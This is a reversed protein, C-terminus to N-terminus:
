TKIGRNEGNEYPFSLCLTTLDKGQLKCLQFPRPLSDQLSISGMRTQQARWRGLPTLPALVLLCPLSSQLMQAAVPYFSPVQMQLSPNLIWSSPLVSGAPLAPVRSGWGENLCLVCPWGASIRHLPYAFTSFISLFQLLNRGGTVEHMKHFLHSFDSFFHMILLSISLCILHVFAQYLYHAGPYHPHCLSFCTPEARYGSPYNSQASTKLTVHDLNM